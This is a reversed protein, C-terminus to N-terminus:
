NITGIITAIRKWNDEKMMLSPCRKIMEFMSELVLTQMCESLDKSRAALILFPYLEEKDDKQFLSDPHATVLAELNGKWKCEFHNLAVFLPLVHNANEIRCGDLYADVLTQIKDNGDDSDLSTRGKRCALHLPLNGNEDQIRLDRDYISVAIKLLKADCYKSSAFLHLPPIEDKNELNGDMEHKQIYRLMLVLCKWVRVHDQHKRLTLEMTPNYYEMQLISKDLRFVGDLDYMSNSILMDLPTVGGSNEMIISRPFSQIMFEIFEPHIAPEMDMGRTLLSHLPLWKQSNVISICKPQAYLIVRAVNEKAHVDIEGNIMTLSSAMFLKHLITGHFDIQQSAFEPQTKLIIEMLEISPVQSPHM